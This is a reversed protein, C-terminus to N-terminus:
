PIRPHDMWDARKERERRIMTLLLRTISLLNAFRGELVDSQIAPAVTTYWARCEGASGLAFEHYRVREKPSRRGYGEAINAAVSGAARVLQATIPVSRPDRGLVGADEWAAAAGYAALRYAEVKWSPDRRVDESTGAEWEDYTM